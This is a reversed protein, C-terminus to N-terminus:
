AAETGPHRSIVLGFICATIIYFVAMISFILPSQHNSLVAKTLTIGGILFHILNAFAIPRNYIGGIIAGKATWNLMAFAFYTAGLLQLILRIAISNSIGLLVIINDPAFTLSVGIAALLIATSTMILKTNM